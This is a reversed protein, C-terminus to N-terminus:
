NIEIDYKTALAKRLHKAEEGYEVANLLDYVGKWTLPFDPPSGGGKIWRDFVQECCQMNDNLTVMRDRQLTSLDQGM